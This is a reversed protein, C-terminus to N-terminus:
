CESPDSIDACCEVWGDSGLTVKALFAGADGALRASGGARCILKPLPECQGLSWGEAQLSGGIEQLLTDQWAPCSAGPARSCGSVKCLHVASFPLGPQAPSCNQVLVGAGAGGAQCPLLLGGQARSSSSSSPSHVRSLWWSWCWPQHPDLGSRTLLQPLPAAVKTPAGSPSRPNDGGGASQLHTLSSDLSHASTLVSGGREASASWLM